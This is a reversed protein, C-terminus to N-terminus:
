WGMMMGRGQNEDEKDAFGPAAHHSEGLCGWLAAGTTNGLTVLEPTAEPVAQDGTPDFVM